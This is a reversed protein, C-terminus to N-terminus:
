QYASSQRHEIRQIADVHQNYIQQLSDVERKLGGYQAAKSAEGSVQGAQADYAAKLLKEKRLAAQYDTSM